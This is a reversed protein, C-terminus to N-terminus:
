KNRRFIFDILNPRQSTTCVGHLSVMTDTVIRSDGGAQVNIMFPQTLDPPLLLKKKRRSSGNVVEFEVEFDRNNIGVTIFAHVLNNLALQEGPQETNSGQGLTHGMSGNGNQFTEETNTHLFVGSRAKVKELSSTSRIPHWVLMWEIELTYKTFYQSPNLM